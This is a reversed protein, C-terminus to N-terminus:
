DRILLVRKNEKPFRTALTNADLRELEVVVSEGRDTLKLRLRSETESIIEAPIERYEGKKTHGM